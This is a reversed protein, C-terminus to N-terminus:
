AQVKRSQLQHSIPRDTDRGTRARRGTRATREPPSFPTMLRKVRNDTRDSQTLRGLIFLFQGGQPQRAVAAAGVAGVPQAAAVAALSPMWLARRGIPRGRFFAFSFRPFALFPKHGRNRENAPRSPPRGENLRRNSWGFSWTGRAGLHMFHGIIGVHKNPDALRM